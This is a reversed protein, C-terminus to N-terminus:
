TRVFREDGALPHDTGTAVSRGAPRDAPQPEDGHLHQRQDGHQPLPHGPQRKRALLRLLGAPCLRYRNDCFPAHGLHRDGAASDDHERRYRGAPVPHRRHALRPSEAAASRPPPIRPPPRVSFGEGHDHIRGYARQRLAGDGNRRANRGPQSTHLALRDM